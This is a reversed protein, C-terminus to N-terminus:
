NTDSEYSLCRFSGAIDPDGNGDYVSRLPYPCMRRTFKTEGNQRRQAVLEGPERGNEVWDVIRELCPIETSGVGPSGHFGGPVLYFKYFDSTDGKVAQTKEFYNIKM